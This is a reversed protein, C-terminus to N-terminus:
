PLFLFSIFAIVGSTFSVTYNKCINVLSLAKKINIVRYQLTNELFWFEHTVISNLPMFYLCKIYMTHIKYQVYSYM